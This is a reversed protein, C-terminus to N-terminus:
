ADSKGESCKGTGRRFRRCDCGAEEKTGHKRYNRSNRHDSSIKRDANSCCTDPEPITYRCWLRCREELTHSM